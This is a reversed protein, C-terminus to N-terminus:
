EDFLGRGVSLSKMFVDEPSEQPTDGAGSRSKRVTQAVNVQSKIAEQAKKEAKKREDELVKDKNLLFYIDDHSITYGSAKQMMDDYQEQSMNHKEMFAKIDTPNSQQKGKPQSSQKPQQRSQMLKNLIKADESKPDSLASNLDFVFDDDIGLQKKFAQSQAEPNTFYEEAMQLFTEDGLMAELMPLVPNLERLKNVADSNDGLKRELEKYSKALDDYNDFKGLIKETKSEPEPNASNDKSSQLNKKDIVGESTFLYNDDEFLVFAGDSLDADGEPQEQQQEVKPEAQQKKETEQKKEISEGNDNVDMIDEDVSEADFNVTGTM